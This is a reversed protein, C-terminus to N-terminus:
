KNFIHRFDGFIYRSYAHRFLDQTNERTWQAIGSGDGYDIFIEAPPLDDGLRCTPSASNCTFAGFTLEAYVIDGTLVDYEPEIGTVSEGQSTKITMNLGAMSNAPFNPYISIAGYPGGCIKAGDGPCTHTCFDTKPAMEIM